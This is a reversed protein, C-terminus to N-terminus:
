FPFFVMTIFLGVLGGAIDMVRKILLRKYSSQFRTYTIVSYGGFSDIKSRGPQTGPLEICYHCDVGMVDFGNLIRQIQKQKLEPAYIFVEDLAMLTVNEMFNDGVIMVPIGDIGGDKGTGAGPCAIGVIQYNIELTDQLRELVEDAMERHTIVLVKIRSLESRYHLQMAKKIMFHLLFTLAINIIPFYIMVLRSFVDAWKLFYMVMQVVLMMIVHYKAIEYLEKKISRKLFNRNWDIFFTYITCFLLLVLCVQFHIGKDGMDRFNGFRIYTALVFSVGIAVLDAFWLGYVEVIKNKQNM